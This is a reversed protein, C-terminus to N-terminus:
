EVFNLPLRILHAPELAGALVKVGARIFGRIAADRDIVPQWRRNMTEM